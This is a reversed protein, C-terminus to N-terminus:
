RESPLQFRASRALHRAERLPAPTRSGESMRLVVDCATEADVRWGAHVVVPRVGAATRLRYAVIEDDLRLEATAGRASTPWSGDALLPRDTVGITPIGHAAGLQLALGARRPHDRGSANVIVVDPAGGLQALAEALLRGERLALLGAAYPADFRDRVVVSHLVAGREVVVAAVWAPDGADGLGEGGRASAVFVGGVRLARDAPPHWVPQHLWREALERQLRQLDEASTPWVV